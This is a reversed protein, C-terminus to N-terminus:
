FLTTLDELSNRRSAVIVSKKDKDIFLVTPKLMNNYNSSMQYCYAGTSYVMLIDNNDIHPIMVDNIIIDGSECCKGTITVLLDKLNNMKNIVDCEYGAEYLAPRINDTMGGDIFLYNTGGYTNKVYSTSYLTVASCGIISRGPEIFVEKPYYNYKISLDQILNIMEKLCSPIDLCVEDKLYNIGFGGGFNIYPLDYHYKNMITSSFNMLVDINELFPEVEMISSGIHSHFGLLIISKNNLYFEMVKNIVNMSNIHEGFKSTKISTQIYKHTHAVVSTNIRFMTRVNNYSYTKVLEKILKLENYNDVVIIVNNEIAFKLEEISKNNGHFVVCRMDFHYKKMIYLDGMSVADIFLNNDSVINLMTPSLYAKSAYVINSNFLSSKFNNKFVSINDNIETSDYVILPTNNENCLDELKINHIYANNDIVNLYKPKMNSKTQVGLDVM